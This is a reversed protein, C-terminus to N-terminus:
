GKKMENVKKCGNEGGSQIVRLTSVESRVGKHLTSLKHNTIVQLGLEEKRKSIYKKRKKDNRIEKKEEKKQNEQYALQIANPHISDVKNFLPLPNNYSNARSMAKYGKSAKLKDKNKKKPNVHLSKIVGRKTVGNKNHIKVVELKNTEKNYTYERLMNSRNGRYVKVERYVGHKKVYDLIEKNKRVRGLIPTKLYVKYLWEHIEIQYKMYYATVVLGIIIPLTVTYHNFEM